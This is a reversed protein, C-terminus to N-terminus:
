ELPEGRRGLETKIMIQNFVLATPQVPLGKRFPYGYLMVICINLSLTIAVLSTMIAQAKFKELGFFYTFTITIVAGIVLVTAMIPSLGYAATIIRLRRNSAIEQMGVLMAEWLSQNNQNKPEFKSVVSWLSRLEDVAKPSPKGNHMKEWEDEVVANVYRLCGIHIEHREKDPFNDALFFVNAIGNAEEEVLVRAHDFKSLSDVVIFGLLVAYLTGIVSLLYGAVEHYSTLDTLQVRKRVLYLGALSLLTSAIIVLLAIILPIFQM